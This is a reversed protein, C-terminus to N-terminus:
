CLANERGTVNTWTRAFDLATQLDFSQQLLVRDWALLAFPTSMQDFRAVVIEPTGCAQSIPGTQYFSRLPQLEADTPCVGDVCRYLAVVSGHELNHIWSGPGIGADPGYFGPRIPALRAANYHPGSAPPCNVFELRGSTQLHQNGQNATVIPNAVTSGEIPALQNACAYNSASAGASSFLAFGIVSVIAVVTLGVIAWIGRDRRDVAVARQRAAAGPRLGTSRVPRPAVAPPPAGRKRKAV